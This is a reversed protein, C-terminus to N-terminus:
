GIFPIRRVIFRISYAGIIISVGSSLNALDFFYWVSPNISAFASSIASTNLFPQILNIVLNYLFAAIATIVVSIVFKIQAADLLWILAKQLIAWM